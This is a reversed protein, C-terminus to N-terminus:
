KRRANRKWTLGNQEIRQWLGAVRSTGEETRRRRDSARIEDLARLFAEREGPTMPPHDM